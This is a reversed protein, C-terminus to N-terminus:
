WTDDTGQCGCLTLAFISRIQVVIGIRFSAFEM